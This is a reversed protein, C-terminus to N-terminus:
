QKQRRLNRTAGNDTQEEVQHPRTAGLQGLAGRAQKRVAAATQYTVAVQMM